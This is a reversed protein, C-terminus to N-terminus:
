LVERDKFLYFILVSLLMCIIIVTSGLCVWDAVRSLWLSWPEKGNVLEKARCETEIIEQLINLDLNGRDTAERIDDHTLIVPIKEKVKIWRSEKRKHNTSFHESTFQVVSDNNEVGDIMASHNNDEKTEHLYEISTEEEEM